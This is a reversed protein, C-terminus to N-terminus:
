RPVLGAAMCRDYLACLADVDSINHAEVADWDGAAVQAAVDAGSGVPTDIGFARCWGALSDGRQRSAGWGTLVQFLDVHTDTTYRRFLHAWGPPLTLGLAVARIAVFHLDFTQGNFTLVRGHTTNIAQRIRDLAWRVMERETQDRGSLVMSRVDLGRLTVCVVRGTRPSLGLTGAWEARDKARWRAIADEAKYNSPPERGAAAYAEDTDIGVQPATEIDLALTTLM